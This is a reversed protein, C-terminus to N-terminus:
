RIFVRGGGGLGALSTGGRSASGRDNRPDPLNGRGIRPTQDNVLIGNAGLIAPDAIGGTVGGGAVSTGEPRHGGPICPDGFVGISGGGRILIGPTEPHDAHDHGAHEDTAMGTASARLPGESPISAVTRVIRPSLEDVHATHEVHAPTERPQPTVTAPISGANSPSLEASSIVAQDGTPAPLLLAPELESLLDVTADSTGETSPNSCAAAVAAAMGFSILNRARM